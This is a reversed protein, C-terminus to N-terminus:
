SIARPMPPWSRGRCEQAPSKPNLAMTRSRGGNNSLDELRPDVQLLGRQRAGPIVSATWSTAMSIRSRGRSSTTRPTTPDVNEINAQNNPGNAFTQNVLDNDRRSPAGALITNALTLTANATM